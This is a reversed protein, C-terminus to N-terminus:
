SPEKRPHLHREGEFIKLVNLLAEYAQKSLIPFKKGAAGSLHFKASSHCLYPNAMLPKCYPTKEM